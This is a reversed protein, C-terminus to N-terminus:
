CNDPIPVACFLTLHGDATPMAKSVFESAWGDIAFGDTFLPESFAECDIITDISTQFQVQIKSGDRAM